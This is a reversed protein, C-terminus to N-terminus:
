LEGRLGLAPLIPIGYVYQQQTYNFNYFVGEVNQRNTVNQVDVYVALSFKDFVFKKDVRVDLQWFDPLRKSWPLGPLPYYYNANTDYLSAVIPTVLSGSAYRFRGGVQLNWPLKYSAVAILNHPQDLPGPAYAVGSYYDREYRSLSYAVWGFFNKTLQQRILIEAGYARGYGKSTYRTEAGPINVDSGLGNALTQRAQHFLDKYYGQVDIGLTDTVKAEAGVMYHSAAEPLLDPNGFVKSLEGLRYDPPQHYLGAGGKLTIREHPSYLISIRPDAWAKNMYSEYDGRVGAIVKFTSFPNWVGEVFLGPEAYLNRSHEALLHREVYPDPVLNAKFQPPSTADVVATVALLDLGASLTLNWDPLEFVFRERLQVPYQTGKFSVDASTGLQQYTDLGLSNRSVFMVKDTLPVDFGVTFRNYMQASGFSGASAESTPDFFPLPNTFSYTDSSGYLMVFARGRASTKKEARIQYDWYQPSVSFSLADKAGPAFTNIAWPLTFEILSKRAAAVVSWGSGVPTEVMGSLDFPNLDLYGHVGSQTPARVDAQILGGISRGFPVGFNGPTFEISKVLNSNFTATLGGFHFLQPIQVEDVYVRSDWAKSGRVILLGQGVPGRSVGPLNAVVQFAEGSTGAVVHIEQQTLKTQSVERRDREAVVTTELSSQSQQALYYTVRTLEGAKIEETADFKVFGQAVAHVELPGLPMGTLEFGGDGDSVAEQGGASVVAGVVPERTGATKLVGSFNVVPVGADPAVPVEVVQQKLQFQYGYRIRVAAPQGDIEAPSFEFQKLAEVAAADFSPGASEVVKADIVKGDPGIDVELVVHAQTGADLADAPYVADASKVVAPPKTLQGQAAATSAIVLFVWALRM